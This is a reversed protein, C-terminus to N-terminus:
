GDSEDKGFNEKAAECIARFRCGHCHINQPYTQWNPCNIPEGLDISTLVQLTM